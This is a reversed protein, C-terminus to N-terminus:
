LKFKFHGKFLGLTPISPGQNSPSSNSPCTAPQSWAPWWIDIKFVMPQSQKRSETQQNDSIHGNAGQAQWWGQSGSGGGHREGAHHVAM